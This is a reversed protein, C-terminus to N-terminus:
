PVPRSPRNKALELLYQPQGDPDAVGFVTGFPMKRLPLVVTAAASVDRFAQEADDVLWYVEPAGTGAMPEDSAIAFHDFQVFTPHTRQARLGLVDEYFRRAAEIDKVYEVVFGFQASAHM